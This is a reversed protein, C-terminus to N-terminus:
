FVNCKIECPRFCSENLEAEPCDKLYESYKKVVDEKWTKFKDTDPVKKRTKAIEIELPKAERLFTLYCQLIHTIDKRYSATQIQHLLQSCCFVGIQAFYGRFANATTSIQQYNLNMIGEYLQNLHPHFSNEHFQQLQMEFMKGNKSAEKQWDLFEKEAM